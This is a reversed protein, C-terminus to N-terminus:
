RMPDHNYLGCKESVDTYADPCEKLEFHGVYPCKTCGVVPIHEDSIIPSEEIICGIGYKIACEHELMCGRAEEWGSIFYAVDAESLIILSKGLYWLGTNTGYPANEEIFSNLIQINDDFKTKIYDIAKAREVKIEEDSKGNM